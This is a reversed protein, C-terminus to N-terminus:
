ADKMERKKDQAGDGGESAEESAALSSYPLMRRDDGRGGRGGFPIRLRSSGNTPQAASFQPSLPLLLSFSKKEDLSAISIAVKKQKSSAFFFLTSLFSHKCIPKKEGNFVSFITECLVLFGRPFCTLRADLKDTNTQVALFPVPCTKRTSKANNRKFLLFERVAKRGHTVTM